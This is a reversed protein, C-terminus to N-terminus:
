RLTNVFRFDLDQMCRFHKKPCAHYGLKSCPRCGLNTVELIQSQKNPHYPGMGFEPITNGWVSIIKKHFASAIHMLGTDSTIVWEAQQIVSASQGLTYKGCTNILGPIQKQLQEGQEADEKGGLLIVPLSATECIEKLKNFPIKKTFYSGGAVLAIFRTEKGSFWTEAVSLQDQNHLFFDLGGGDNTVGIPKVTELYRDVIHKEPLLSRMKLSVALFKQVNIKDFVYSKANLKQKLRFSRLNKHLDIVLDYKEASLAEYIESIDKKFTHLKDVYPNVDLLSLFVSKTVVHLEVNALQQKVCRIVPTTLVIDGISSFRIILIKKM